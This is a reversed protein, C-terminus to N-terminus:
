ASKLTVVLVSAVLVSGAALQVASLPMGLVFTNLLLSGVPFLLEIWTATSAPTRAMGRYYALFAVLGPVISMYLLPMRVAPDAVPTWPASGAVAMAALTLAGITFRWFTALDPTLNRLLAKGAVTAVGWLSAAAIALLAGRSRPDFAMDALRFDPFVLVTASVLAVPGFLFLARPPREKLVVMALVLVVLPQFKQLLIVVSPNLDRFAATFAVTALASGGVGAIGASIWDVPRLAFARRGHRYAIWPLLLAVGIAHEVLVILTPDVADVTPKRFVSDTSWLLAALAIFGPGAAWSSTKGVPRAM